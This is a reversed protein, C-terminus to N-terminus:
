VGNASLILTAKTFKVCSAGFDATNTFYRTFIAMPDNLTV